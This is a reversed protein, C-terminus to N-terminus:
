CSLGCGFQVFLRRPVSPFYAHCFLLTAFALLSFWRRSALCNQKALCRDHFGSSVIYADNSHEVSKHLRLKWALCKREDDKQLQNAPDAMILGGDFYVVQLVATNQCPSLTRDVKGVSNQRLIQHNRHRRKNEWM